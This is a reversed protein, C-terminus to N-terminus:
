EYKWRSHHRQPMCVWELEFKNKKREMRIEGQREARNSKKMVSDAFVIQGKPVLSQRQGLKKGLTSCVTLHLLYWIICYEIRCQSKFFPLFNNTNQVAHFFNNDSLQM